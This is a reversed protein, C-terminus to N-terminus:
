GVETANEVVYLPLTIRAKYEIGKQEATVIVKQGFKVATLVVYEPNIQAVLKKLGNTIPLKIPRGM